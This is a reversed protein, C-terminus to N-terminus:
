RQGAGYEGARGGDEINRLLVIRSYYLDTGPAGPEIPFAPDFGDQGFTATGYM